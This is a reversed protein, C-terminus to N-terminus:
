KFRHGTVAVQEAKLEQLLPLVESIGIRHDCCLMVLRHKVPQTMGYEINELAADLDQEFQKRFRLLDMIKESRRHRADGDDYYEILIKDANERLGESIWDSPSTAITQLAKRADEGVPNVRVADEIEKLAQREHLAAILRSVGDSRRGLLVYDLDVGREAYAVLVAAPPTTTGKEWAIQAGKSVGAASALDTQTLNLRLREEKLRSGIGSM